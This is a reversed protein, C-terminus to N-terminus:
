DTASKSISLGQTWPIGVRPCTVAINDDGDVPAATGSKTLGKAVLDLVIPAASREPYTEQEVCEHSRPTQGHSDTKLIKDGTELEDLAGVRLDIRVAHYAKRGKM